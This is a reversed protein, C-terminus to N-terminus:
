KPEHLCEDDYDELKLCDVNSPRGLSAILRVKAATLPCADDFGCLTRSGTPSPMSGLYGRCSQEKLRSLPWYGQSQLWDKFFSLRLEKTCVYDHFDGSGCHGCRKTEWPKNRSCQGCIKDRKGVHREDNASVEDIVLEIQRQVRDKVKECLERM